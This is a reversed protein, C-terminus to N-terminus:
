KHVCTGQKPRITFACSICWNLKNMRDSITGSSINYEKAWDNLCQTIGNFTLWVNDRKNRTQNYSSEWKVNGKEYHKSNDIRDVSYNKGPKNGLEEYFEQFNAFRFEIGRGGWDKYRPHNQNNCRQEACSYSYYESSKYMGHKTNTIKKM